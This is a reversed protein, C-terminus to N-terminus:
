RPTKHVYTGPCGSRRYTQETSVWRGICVGESAHFHLRGQVSTSSRCPDPIVSWSCYKWSRSNLHSIKAFSLTWDWEQLTKVATRPVKRSVTVLMLRLWNAKAGRQLCAIYCSVCALANFCIIFNYVAITKSVKVRYWERRWIGKQLDDLWWTM